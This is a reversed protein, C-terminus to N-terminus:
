ARVKDLLIKFSEPNNIALESLMKRNLSINKQKLLNMFQSYTLGNERVAANIRAIWLRRFQRKREKRGVYANALARKVSEQANKFTSHRRQYFGKALKLIKKHRRRRVIGTKVRM